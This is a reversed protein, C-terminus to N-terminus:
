KCKARPNLKEPKYSASTNISNNLVFIYDYFYRLSISYFAQSSNENVESKKKLKEKEWGGETKENRFFSM